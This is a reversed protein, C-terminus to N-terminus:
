CFYIKDSILSEQYSKSFHPFYKQAIDDKVELSYLLRFQFFRFKEAYLSFEHFAIFHRQKKVMKLQISEEKNM